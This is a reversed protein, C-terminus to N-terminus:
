AEVRWIRCTTESMVRLSYTRKGIERNRKTAAAGLATRAEIPLEISQGKKKLQNFVPAWKDSGRRTVTSPIPVDEDVRIIKPDLSLLATHARPRAKKPEPATPPPVPIAAVIRKAAAATFETRVYAPDGDENTIRKLLGADVAMALNTHVSNRGCDFKEAIDLSTLEEDPNAAFFTIVKAPLTGIQPIYTTNKM